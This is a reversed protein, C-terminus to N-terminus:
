QQLVLTCSLTSTLAMFERHIAFAHAAAKAHRIRHGLTAAPCLAM